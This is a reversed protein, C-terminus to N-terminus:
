PAPNEKYLVKNEDTLVYQVNDYAILTQDKTVYMVSQGVVWKDCLDNVLVITGFGLPTGAGIGDLVSRSPEILVLPKQLVIDPVPM